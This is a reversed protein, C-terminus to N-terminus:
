TDWNKSWKLLWKDIFEQSVDQGEPASGYNGDFGGIWMDILDPQVKWGHDPNCYEVQYIDDGKLRRVIKLPIDKNIYGFKVKYSIDTIKAM